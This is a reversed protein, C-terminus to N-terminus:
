INELSATPVWGINGDELEIEKWERMSDDSIKVKRGEHIVFLDTGSNSPTSKATVSPQVIIADNRVTLYHYLHLASMHAFFTAFLSVLAVAFCAKRMAINKGFLFLLATTLFIIFAVVAAVAWTHMGLLNVISEIWSVLFFKHTPAVKDVTKSRALELNFKIDDDSPSLLLAREFNLIAKAINDAKYYANGLNYYLDASENEDAIIQEYIEIAESYNGNVYASDAAIKAEGLASAEGAHLFMPAACLLFIYIIKNM